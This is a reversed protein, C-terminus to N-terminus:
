SEKTLYHEALALDEPRTIKLNVSMAEVVEAQHGALEIASAEDTLSLGREIGSSLSELLLHYRFMQPTQARWLLSRDVTGTIAKGDM